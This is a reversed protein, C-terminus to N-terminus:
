KDRYSGSFINNAAIRPTSQHRNPSLRSMPLSGWTPQRFPVVFLKPSASIWDFSVILGCNLAM